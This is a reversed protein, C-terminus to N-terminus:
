SYTNQFPNTSSTSFNLNLGPETRHLRSLPQLLIGMIDMECFAQLRLTLSEEQTNVRERHSRWTLSTFTGTTDTVALVLHGASYTVTLNSIPNSSVRVSVTPQSLRLRLLDVPNHLRYLWLHGDQTALVLLTLHVTVETVPSGLSVEPQYESYYVGQM